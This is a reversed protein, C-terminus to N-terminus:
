TQLQGAVGAHRFPLRPPSLRFKLARRSVPSVSSRLTPSVKVLFRYAVRAAASFRKFPLGSGLRRVSPPTSVLRAAGLGRVQGAYSRRLLFPSPSPITWVGFKSPTGWPVRLPRRFGHLCSFGSTALVHPNSERRRCWDELTFENRRVHPALMRSLSSAQRTL